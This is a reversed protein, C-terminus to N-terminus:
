TYCRVEFLKVNKYGYTEKLKIRVATTKVLDFSVRVLRTRNNYVSAVEEWKGQIRVEVSLSKVLEPPIGIIQGANKKPNKHMMMKRHLNTDSKLEVKSLNVAKDWELQLEANLGESEWHHIKDIEDRSIGDTLLKADGSSTSSAFIISCNHALDNEDRAPRNPIFVDDRILQEQLEEINKKALKGPKIGKQVCMASATGVAQGMLACTAQIRTSSLVMHTVSVNRGAFLLNSINQSYLCRFPIEYVKKFNAHFYSPPEEPSLIGGPCHEDLSWGGYAVADHFHRYEELDKQTLIYDGMFRRSERKGPVSGVWDLVHNAAEPFAGSNKIYDWVGHLYGMLKHRNMEQDAIIDFDSGLEVWWYGEKVQKIKRKRMKEAEYELVFSPPNYPTPKGMDKTSMLISAGMQWGDAKEPAFSEGFESSAERGTRYKAGATAALLGDGSCDIFMKASISIETETTSQWCLASKIESGDMIAKTAQTNLMLDLNDQRTVYDYVVHDWVTYSEQPNFHWNEILIEEIIGTEREVVFKNKLGQVGNVTVRIESSANGGLVPRDQVLVTSAGTRASAVAASIGAMGAGIVVVDYDISINRDPFGFGGRGLQQWKDTKRDDPSADKKTIQGQLPLATAAIAAVTGKKFFERRKM